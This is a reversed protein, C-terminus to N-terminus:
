SNKNKTSFQPLNIFFSENIFKPAIIAPAASIGANREILVNLAKLGSRATDRQSPMRTLLHLQIRRIYSNGHLHQSKQQAIFFCISFILFILFMSFEELIAIDDKSTEKIRWVFFITSIFREKREEIKKRGVRTNKYLLIIHKM